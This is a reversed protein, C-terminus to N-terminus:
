RRQKRRSIWALVGIMLLTSAGPEPIVGDPPIVMPDSIPVFPDMGRAGIVIGRSLLRSNTGTAGWAFEIPASLQNYLLEVTIREQTATDNLDANGVSSWSGDIQQHRFLTFDQTADISDQTAPNAAQFEFGALELLTNSSVTVQDPHSNERNFGFVDSFNQGTNSDIDFIQFLVPETVNAISGLPNDNTATGNEVLRITFITLQNDTSRGRLDFRLSQGPVSDGTPKLSIGAESNVFSEFRVVADLPSGNFNAVDDFFYTAGVTLGSPDVLTGDPNTDATSPFLLGEVSGSPPSFTINLVGLASYPLAFCAAALAVRGHSFTRFM